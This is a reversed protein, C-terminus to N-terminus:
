FNHRRNYVYWSILIIFIGPVGWFVLALVGAVLFIPEVVHDGVHLDNLGFARLKNNINLVINQLDGVGQFGGAAQQQSQQQQYSENPASRNNTHNKLNQHQMWEIARPDDDQVVEGNIIKVM